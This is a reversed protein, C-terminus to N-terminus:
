YVLRTTSGLISYIPDNLVWANTDSFDSCNFAIRHTGRGITETYGEVTLDIVPSPATAPMSTVTFRSGVDSTLALTLSLNAGDFSDLFIDTYGGSVTTTALGITQLDITIAPCRPGPDGYRNVTWAARSLVENDDATLLNLTQVYPGFEDSSAQNVARQTAGGPRSATVDNGFIALLSDDVPFSPIDALSSAPVSFQTPQNYRFSRAHFTVTGDPAAFLTGAETDAVDQMAAMPQQGGVSQSLLSTSLGPDLNRETTPVGLYDLIRGIRTDSSEGAFGTTGAQYLRTIQDPTLVTPYANVHNVTGTLLTRIIPDWGAYAQAANVPPQVTYGATTAVSVGDLYLTITNGTGDDTVVAHHTHADNVSAGSSLNARGGGTWATLKNGSTTGLILPGVACLSLPGATATNFWCELSMASAATTPNVPAQMYWGVTGTSRTFTPASAGDTGPGTSTGLTLTGAGGLLTAAMAPQGNGSLDGCMTGSAEDMPFLCIPAYLKAEEVLFPALARAQAFKRLRDLATVTVQSNETTGVWTSPWSSVYGAFRVSAIAAVPDFTTASSAAEVQVADVYCVTGATATGVALVQIQHSTASAVWTQTIRTWANKVSTSAGLGVGNSLRLDPSGTLAYVYASTTYTAGIAFGGTLAASGQPFAGGNWVLKMAFGGDFSSFGDRTVTPAFSGLPLWGSVDVEFSPNTVMNKIWFLSTVRIKKGIKVNPWYPSSTNGATFRGDRNDMTLSCEGPSIQSQGESRGRMINIQNDTVRVYQSVDNWTPTGFFTGFSIEVKTAETYNTM